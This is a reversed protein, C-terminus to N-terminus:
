DKPASAETATTQAMAVFTGLSAKFALPLLVRGRACLSPQWVPPEVLCPRFLACDDASRAPLGGSLVGRLRRVAASAISWATALVPAPEPAPAPEATPVVGLVAASAERGIVGRVPISVKNAATSEFEVQSEGAQACSRSSALLQQM